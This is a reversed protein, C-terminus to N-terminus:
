NTELKSALMTTTRSRRKEEMKIPMFENVPSLWFTFTRAPNFEREFVMKITKMRGLPTDINENDVSKLTYGRIRKKRGDVVYLSEQALNQDHLLAAAFPMNCNDVVYGNPMDLVDGGSFRIKREHYDFGVQYDGSDTRGGGYETSITRGDVVEFECSQQENSGIIIAALGQAKTKSFVSYGAATHKLVTETTGLTANGLKDSDLSVVYEISVPKFPHAALAAPLTMFAILLTIGVAICRISLTRNNM